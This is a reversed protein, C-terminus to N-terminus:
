KLQLCEEEEEEEEEEEKRWLEPEGERMVGEREERTRMM